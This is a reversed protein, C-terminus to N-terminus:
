VEWGVSSSESKPKRVELRAVDPLRPHSMGLDSPVPTRSVVGPMDLVVLYPLLYPGESILIWLFWRSEQWTQSEEQQFISPLWLAGALPSGLVCYRVWSAKEDGHALFGRAGVQLCGVQGLRPFVEKGELLVM